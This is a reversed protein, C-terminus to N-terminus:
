TKITQNKIYILRTKRLLIHMAILRVYFFCVMVKLLSHIGTKWHKSASSQMVVLNIAIFDPVFQTSMDIELNQENRRLQVVIEMHFWQCPVFKIKSFTCTRYKVGSTSLTLGWIDMRKNEVNSYGNKNVGLNWEEENGCSCFFLASIREKGLRYTEWGTGEM